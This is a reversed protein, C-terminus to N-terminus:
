HKKELEVKKVFTAKRNQLQQKYQTSNLWAKFGKSKAMKKRDELDIFEGHYALYVDPNLGELTRFTKEYDALVSPYSPNKVFRTGPNITMGDAFVVNYSKNGERFEMQWTTCGKTHGSTLHATLTINGFSVHEQDKVTRDVLVGEFRFEPRNSFLFDLEGGSKLLAADDDMAILQAGSARKHAALTGAHDFHAHSSLILKIDELKFGLKKISSNIAETAQGPAGSLLILGADSKIIYVGIGRTGVYYIPGAVHFPETPDTWSPPFRTTKTPKPGAACLLM